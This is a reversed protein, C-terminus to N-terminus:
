SCSIFVCLCHNNHTRDYLYETIEIVSIHEKFYLNRRHDTSLSGKESTTLLLPDTEFIASSIAQQVSTDVDINGNSLLLSPVTCYIM